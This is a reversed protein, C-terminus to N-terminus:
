SKLAEHWLLTAEIDEQRLTPYEQLIEEPTFGVALNGLIVSVLVRTGRICVKGHCINPDISIRAGWDM